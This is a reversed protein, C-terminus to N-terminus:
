SGSIQNSISFSNNQPTFHRIKCARSVKLINDWHFFPNFLSCVWLLWLWYVQSGTKFKGGPQLLSTHHINNSNIGNKNKQHPFNQKKKGMWSVGQFTQIGISILLLTSHWPYTILCRCACLDSCFDSCIKRLRRCGCSVPARNLTKSLAASVRAKFFGLFSNVALTSGRKLLRSCNTGKGNFIKVHLNEIQRSNSFYVLCM